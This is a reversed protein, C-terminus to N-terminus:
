RDVTAGAARGRLAVPRVNAGFVTLRGGGAVVVGAVVGGAGEVGLVGEVGDVGVVGVVGVVVVVGDAGTLGGGVGVGAGVGVGVGGTTTGGMTRGGITGGPMRSGGSVGGGSVIVRGGSSGREDFVFRGSTLTSGRTGVGVGSGGAVSCTQLLGAMLQAVGDRPM